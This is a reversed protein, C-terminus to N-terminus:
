IGFPKKEEAGPDKEKPIGADGIFDSIAGAEEDAFAEAQISQWTERFSRDTLMIEWHTTEIITPHLGNMAKLCERIATKSQELLKGSEKAAVTAFIELALLGNDFADLGEPGAERFSKGQLRKQLSQFYIVLWNPSSMRAAFVAIPMLSGDGRDIKLGQWGFQGEEALAQPLEPDDRDISEMLADAAPGQIAVPEENKKAERKGKAKKGM